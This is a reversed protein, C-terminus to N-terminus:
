RWHDLNCRSEVDKETADPLFPFFDIGTIREVQDVTNVYDGMPRNGDENKYIFGIAEPHPKLRLVVKFFAEPVVVGKGIRKHKSRYLIPGCVIYIDGYDEAWTRCHNELESWDGANLSHAQPCINTLLFCQQQAQKSWRNDGSPCMHGRDYGSRSYDFTTPSDDVDDDPTFKQGKRKYPGDTHDATLHWAVWNPIRNDPNWSSVYAYRQLLQENMGKPSAALVNDSTAEETEPEETNEEEENSAPEEEISTANADQEYTDPTAAATQQESYTNAKPIRCGCVIMCGIAAYLIM